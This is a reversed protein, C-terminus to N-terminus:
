SVLTYCAIIVGCPRCTMEAVSGWGPETATSYSFDFQVYAEELSPGTADPGKSMTAGAALSVRM